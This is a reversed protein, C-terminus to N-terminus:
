ARESAAGGGLVLVLVALRDGAVREAGAEADGVLGGGIQEVVESGGACGGRRAAYTLGFCLALAAWGHGNTSLMGGSASWIV